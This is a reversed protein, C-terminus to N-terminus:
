DVVVLETTCDIRSLHWAPLLDFCFFPRLLIYEIRCIKDCILTREQLLQIECFILRDQIPYISLV